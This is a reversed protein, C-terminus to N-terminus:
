DVTLEISGVTRTLDGYDYPPRKRVALVWVWRETDDVAYIIRWKDLRLRRPEFNEPPWDLEKSHVPRPNKGLALMARKLRQRINGPTAQAEARVEPEVWVRYSM